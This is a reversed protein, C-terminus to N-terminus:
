SVTWMHDLRKTYRPVELGTQMRAAVPSTKCTSVDLFSGLTSICTGSWHKNTVPHACLLCHQSYIARRNSLSATAVATPMVLAQPTITARTPFRVPACVKFGRWAAQIRIVAALQRAALAAAAAKEEAAQLEAFAHMHNHPQNCGWKCPTLLWLFAQNV